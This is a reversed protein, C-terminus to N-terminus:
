LRREQTQSDPQIYKHAHPRGSDYGWSEFENANEFYEDKRKKKKKTYVQEVKVWM